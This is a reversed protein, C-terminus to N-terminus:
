VHARGIKNATTVSVFKEVAKGGGEFKLLIQTPSIPSWVKMKLLNNVRLDVPTPLDALLFCFDSQDNNSLKGVFDSPNGADKSPNDVAGGFSAGNIAAWPLDATGGEFDEFIQAQLFSSTFIFFM